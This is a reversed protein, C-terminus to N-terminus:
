RRVLHTSAMRRGESSLAVVIYVGTPLASIDLTSRGAGNEVATPQVMRGYMDHVVWATPGEQEGMNPTLLEVLGETPNPWAIVTNDEATCAAAVMTQFLEEMGDRDVQRLRYYRENTFFRDDDRWAYDIRHQSHGAAPMEGVAHWTFADASREVIFHSSNRESATAWHLVARGRECVADCYLLKVPLLMPCPQQWICYANWKRLIPNFLWVRGNAYSFRYQTATVATSPLQTMGTFVGDSRRFLLVRKASYDLLGIEYGAQGTYILTNTNVLSLSTGTLPITATLAASTRDYVYLSSANYFLVTNTNWDYAGVAQAAPQNPGTFLIYPAGTTTAQCSGDVPVTYWGGSSSLNCEVQGTNPNWWAGRIDVGTTTQFTSAGGTANWTELTFTANGSRLSYYRSCVPNWVVSSANTVTAAVFELSDALLTATAAPTWQGCLPAIGVWVAVAVGIAHRIRATIPAQM